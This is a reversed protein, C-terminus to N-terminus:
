PEGQPERNPGVELAMKAPLDGASGPEVHFRRVKLEVQRRSWRRREALRLLQLQLPGEVRLLAAVHAVGLHRYGNLEPYRQSLRYIAAARWM